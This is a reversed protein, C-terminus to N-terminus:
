HSKGFLLEHVKCCLDEAENRHMAFRLTIRREEAEGAHSTIKTWGVFRVIDDAIEVEVGAILTEAVILPETLPPPESQDM